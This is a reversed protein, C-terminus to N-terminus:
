PTEFSDRELRNFYLGSSFYKGIPCSAETTYVAIEVNGPSQKRRRYSKASAKDAFVVYGFTCNDFGDYERCVYKM